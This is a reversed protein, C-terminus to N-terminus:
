KEKELLNSGSLRRQLEMALSEKVTDSAVGQLRQSVRSEANVMLSDESSARLDRMEQGALYQEIVPAVGTRDEEMPDTGIEMGGDKPRLSTTSTMVHAYEMRRRIASSEQQQRFTAEKVAEKVRDVAAAEMELVIDHKEQAARRVLDEYKRQEEMAAQRQTSLAQILQQERGEGEKLQARM